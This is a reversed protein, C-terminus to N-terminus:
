WHDFGKPPARNYRKKYETVAEDLTTSARELKAEWEEQARSILEYIPHAGEENVELLGDPRFTHKGLVPTPKLKLKSKPVDVDEEIDPKMWGAEDEFSSVRSSTSIFPRQSHLPDVVQDHDGLEAGGDVDKRSRHHGVSFLVVVAIFVLLRAGRRSRLLLSM